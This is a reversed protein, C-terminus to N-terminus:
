IDRSPNTYPKMSTKDKPSKTKAEIPTLKLLSDVCEIGEKFWYRLSRLIKVQEENLGVRMIIDYNEKKCSCKLFNVTNMIHRKGHDNDIEDILNAFKKMFEDKRNM